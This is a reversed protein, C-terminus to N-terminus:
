QKRTISTAKATWGFGTSQINWYLDKKYGSIQIPKNLEQKSLKILNQIDLATWSSVYNSGIGDRKVSLRAINYIENSDGFPYVKGAKISMEAAKTNEPTAFKIKIDWMSDNKIFFDANIANTILFGIIFATKSFIKIINM